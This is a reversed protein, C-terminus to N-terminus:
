SDPPEIRNKTPIMMNEAPLKNLANVDNLTKLMKENIIIANGIAPNQSINAAEFVGLSGSFVICASVKNLTDIM